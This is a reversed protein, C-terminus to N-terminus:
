LFEKIRKIEEGTLFMEFKSEREKGGDTFHSSVVLRYYDGLKELREVRMMRVWDERETIVLEKFEM